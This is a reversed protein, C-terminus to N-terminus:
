IDFIFFVFYISFFLYIVYDRSLFFLFVKNKPQYNLGRLIAFLFILLSLFETM